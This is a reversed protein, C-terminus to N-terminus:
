SIESDFVNKQHKLIIMRSIYHYWAFARASTQAVMGVLFIGKPTIDDQVLCRSRYGSTSVIIFEIDLIELILRRSIYSYLKTSSINFLKLILL